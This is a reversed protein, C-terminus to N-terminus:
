PVNRSESGPSQTMEVDGDSGAPEEDSGLVEQDSTSSSVHVTADDDEKEEPPTNPVDESVSSTESAIQNM